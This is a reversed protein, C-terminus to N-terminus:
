FLSLAVIMIIGVMSVLMIISGVILRDTCLSNRDILPEPREITIVSIIDPTIPTIPTIPTTLDDREYLTQSVQYLAAHYICYQEYHAFRECKICQIHQNSM